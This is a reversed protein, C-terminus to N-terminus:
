FGRGFQFHFHWGDAKGDVPDVDDFGYGYDFGILGVGQVLIRAGLGASRKLDFIDLTHEDKWVNGAEAFALVYVPMPNITLAFRLESVYRSFMKGGCISGRIRPGISRDEYGRLQKTQVQLGNGGMYFYEIPPIYSSSTFGKVFGWETGAYLTLRNQDAIKLLPTFWDVSFEHKHYDVSGPLPGGSIETSLVIRSGQSPFIPSDLSNRSLAQTLSVQSYTGTDYYGGGDIVDLYQYRLYWDARSYEDPWAFRRGLNVSIGTRQLDYNYQQREDYLSFGVTTPTDMFWPEAFTLSFIRYRSAEGFQWEMSLTQGAGGTFPASINFNNFTLGLSGTAGYTGSYGVSANFTDSSREEVNYIIDVTSDNVPSPEPKITEPNFYNLTSLERISRIIASRSFYDGPWTYLVRRIVKDYTKGNGRIQVHGIRFQNRESINVIVDISDPSTRINESVANFGLYGRDLYLSGVDTQDKNGKLNEDFKVQNFVDGKQFDLRATLISDSYVTNGRWEINRLYVANGESVTINIFMEDRDPSYWISDSVVEADMYGKEHYFQAILEKDKEYKKRDFKASSWFKWWKKEETEDMAGRLNGDSFAKNGTFTISEVKVTRGEDITVHLVSRGRALSDTETNLDIKALLYGKEEYATRLKKRIRELDQPRILQGRVLGIKTRIEEENFEDNGSIDIRDLRPYEQVRIMLYVGEAIQRDIVIEIYSFLRMQWLQTVAKATQDSPVILEDGTRLGSNMIITGPDATTSGEVSIGLIKYAKQQPLLNQAPAANLFLAILGLFVIRIDVTRKPM